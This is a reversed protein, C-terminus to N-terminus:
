VSYRSDLSLRSDFASELMYDYRIRGLLAFQRDLYLDVVPGLGLGYSLELEQKPHAKELGGRLGLELGLYFAEYQSLLTVESGLYFFLSRYHGPRQRPSNLTDLFATGDPLVGRQYIHYDPDQWIYTFDEYSLHLKLALNKEVFRGYSIGLHYGYNEQPVFGAELSAFQYGKGKQIQGYGLLPLCLCLLLLKKM